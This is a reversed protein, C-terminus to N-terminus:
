LRSQRRLWRGRTPPPLSRNQLLLSEGAADEYVGIEPRHNFQRSASKGVQRNASTGGSGNRLSKRSAMIM